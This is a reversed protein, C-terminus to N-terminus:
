CNLISYISKNKCVLDIPKNNITLRIKDNYLFQYYDYASLANLSLKEFLNNLMDFIQFYLVGISDLNISERKINMIGEAETTQFTLKINTKQRPFQIIKTM